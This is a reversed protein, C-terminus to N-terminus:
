LLDTVDHKMHCSMCYSKGSHYQSLFPGWPWGAPVLVSHTTLDIWAPGSLCCSSLLTMHFGEVPLTSADCWRGKSASLAFVLGPGPAMGPIGTLYAFEMCLCRGM